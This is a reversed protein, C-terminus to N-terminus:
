DEILYGGAAITRGEVARPEKAFNCTIAQGSSFVTREVEGDDSLYRHDTMEALGVRAHWRDVHLTQAFAQRQAPWDGANRVGWLAFYGWLMDTLWCAPAGPPTDATFQGYRGCCAADHYVLPWLPISENARRAHRNELWDVLGMGFDASEESGLVQGQDKYFRLLEIKYQEDQTRTLENGPEYSEYQNVATTTDIFMARTGLSKLQKWNRRAYDVSDRTNIIYCQGGAWIGGAMPRGDPLRFVGKPWSAARPYMDAHNDHLAVILGDGMACIERLQEVSGLAPEPPWVDPHSDDYGGKIWGRVVVLGKMGLSRADETIRKVDAHSVWVRMTGDQARQEPTVTRLRDEDADAHYTNGQMFSLIRGGILEAVAPMAEIKEALSRFLGHDKAWQRFAKAMGVYGGTTFCYRITRDRGWRGMSKLWGPSAYQDAVAVGADHHEGDFVAMWGNQGKLGGFFRMNLHSGFRWFHRGGVSQRAWQGVNRPYVMSESAIPPPFVLSPIQEDIDRIRFQIWQGDLAVQLGFTGVEQRERGLLTVRFGDGQRAVRFRGPYQECISRGTRLWVHGVDIPGDEQIAVPGMHWSTGGGKDLLDASADDHLTFAIHDNELRQILNPM